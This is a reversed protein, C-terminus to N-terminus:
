KERRVVGDWEPGPEKILLGKCREIQFLAVPDERGRRHEEFCGIADQWKRERYLAMGREWVALREARADDPALIEYIRTAADKGKVIVHDLERAPFAGAVAARMSESAVIRAGYVACLGELRSALNVTDGIVTFELKSSSGVTGAVVEGSNLGVGADVTFLGKARRERNAEDLSRLMALSATVARREDDAPEELAGWEAMIADGMFKDIRGGHAQIAATMRELHGNLFAVLEEPQLKESISTFKRIDSFLVTVRRRQGLVAGAKGEIVRKVVQPSVYSGFTSKIFEREKLGAVMANFSDGISAIEDSGRTTWRVDLSGGGARQMLLALRGLREVVARRLFAGTLVWLVLLLGGLLAVYAMYVFREQREAAALSHTLYIYGQPRGAVLLPQYREVVWGYPGSAERRVPAKERELLALARPDLRAPPEPLGDRAGAWAQRQGQVDYVAAVPADTTARLTHELRAPVAKWLSQYALDTLDKALEDGVYRLHKRGGEVSAQTENRQYPVIVATAITAIAAVSVLLMLTLRRRLTM